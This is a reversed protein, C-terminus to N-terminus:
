RERWSSKRGRNGRTRRVEEKKELEGGGAERGGEIRRLEKEAAL